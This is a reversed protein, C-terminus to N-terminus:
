LSHALAINYSIFGLPHAGSPPFGKVFKLFFDLNSWAVGVWRSCFTVMKMYLINAFEYAKIDFHLNM